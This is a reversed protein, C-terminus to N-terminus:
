KIVVNYSKELVQFIFVEMVEQILNKVLSIMERLKKLFFYINIVSYAASRSENDEVPMESSQATKEYVDSATPTWKRENLDLAGDNALTEQNYTYNQATSKLQGCTVALNSWDGKKVECNVMKGGECDLNACASYKATVLPIKQRAMYFEGSPCVCWGGFYEKEDAGGSHVLVSIDAEYDELLRGCTVKKYNWLSHDLSSANSVTKKNCSLVTGGNCSLANSDTCTKGKQLGAYMKEGNPCQCEGGGEIFDTNNAGVDESNNERFVDPYNQYDHLSSITYDRTDDVGIMTNQFNSTMAVRGGFGLGAEFPKEHKICTQCAEHISGLWSGGRLVYRESKQFFNDAVKGVGKGWIYNDTGRKWVDPQDEYSIEGCNSVQPDGIRKDIDSKNQYFKGEYCDSVWEEALGLMDYLGFSNKKEAAGVNPLTFQGSSETTESTWASNKAAVLGSLDGSWWKMNDSGAKASYEWQSSSPINFPYGTKEALWNVFAKIDRYSQSTAPQQDNSVQTEEIKGCTKYPGCNSKSLWENKALDESKGRIESDSIYATEEVFVGWQAKTILTEGIYFGKTIEADFQPESMGRNPNQDNSSNGYQQFYGGGGMKFFGPPVYIQNMTVQENSQIGPKNGLEVVIKKPAPRINEAEKIAEKAETLYYNPLKNSRSLFYAKRAMNVAKFAKNEKRATKEAKVLYDVQNKLQDLDTPKNKMEDFSKEFGVIRVDCIGPEESSNECYVALTNVADNGELYTVPGDNKVYYSLPRGSKGELNQLIKGNLYVKMKAHFMVRISFAKLQAGPVAFKKRLYIKNSVWKTRIWESSVGIRYDYSGFPGYASKTWTTTTFNKALWSDNSQVTTTYEWTSGSGDTLTKGFMDCVTNQKVGCRVAYGLLAKNNTEFSNIKSCTDGVGGECALKTSCDDTRDSIYAGVLFKEGDPCTCYGGNAQSVKKAFDPNYGETNLKYEEPKYYWNKTSFRPDCCGGQAGKHQVSNMLIKYKNSAYAQCQYDWKYNNSSDAERFCNSKIECTPQAPYEVNMAPGMFNRRPKSSDKIYRLSSNDLSAPSNPWHILFALTNVGYLQNNQNTMAGVIYQTKKIQDSAMLKRDIQVGTSGNAADQISTSIIPVCDVMRNKWVDQNQQMFYGVKGGSLCSEQFQSMLQASVGYISKDPCTCFGGYNSTNMSILNGFGGQVSPRVPAFYFGKFFKDEVWGTFPMGLLKEKINLDYNKDILSLTEFGDNAIYTEGINRLMHFVIYNEASDKFATIDSYGAMFIGGVEQSLNVGSVPINELGRIFLGSITQSASDVQGFLLSNDYQNPDNSSDMEILGIFYNDQTLRYHLKKCNKFTQSSPIECDIASYDDFLSAEVLFFKDIGLFDSAKAEYNSAACVQKIEADTFDDKTGIYTMISIGTTKNIKCLFGGYQVTGSEAVLKGNTLDFELSSNNVNFPLDTNDWFNELKLKLKNNQDMQLTMNEKSKGADIEFSLSGIQKLGAKWTNISSINVFKKATNQSYPISGFVMDGKRTMAFKTEFIESNGNDFEHCSIDMELKRNYFAMIFRQDLVELYGVSSYNQEHDEMLDNQNQVSLYNTDSMNQPGNCNMYHNIDDITIVSNSPTLKVVMYKQVYLDCRKYRNVTVLQQSTFSYAANSIYNVALDKQEKKKDDSISFQGKLKEFTEGQKIPKSAYTPTMYTDVITGQTVVNSSSFLALLNQFLNSSSDRVDDGFTLMDSAQDKTMKLKTLETSTLENAIQSPTKSTNSYNTLKQLLQKTQTNDALYNMLNLSKYVLDENDSQVTSAGWCLNQSDPTIVQSNLATKFETLLTSGSDFLCAMLATREDSTFSDSVDWEDKTILDNRTKGILEIFSILAKLATKKAESLRFIKSITTQILEPSELHKNLFDQIDKVYVGTEREEINKFVKFNLGLLNKLYVQDKKPLNQIVLMIDECDSLTELELQTMLSDDCVVRPQAQIPIISQNSELQTNVIGLFTVRQTEGLKFVPNKSASYESALRDQMAIKESDIMSAKLTSVEHASITYLKITDTGEFITKIAIRDFQPFVRLKKIFCHTDTEAMELKELKADTLTVEKYKDVEFETILNIIATKQTANVIFTEIFLTNYREFGNSYLWNMMDCLSIKQTSGELWGKFVGQITKDMSQFLKLLSLVQIDTMLFLSKTSTVVSSDLYTTAAIVEALLAVINSKQLDTWKFMACLKCSLTDKFDLIVNTDIKENSLFIPFLMRIEEYSYKMAAQLLFQGKKEDLGMTQLDATSFSCATNPKKCKEVNQVFVLKQGQSLSFMPNFHEMLSTLKKENLYLSFDNQTMIKKGADVNGQFKSKLEGIQNWSLGFLAEFLKLKNEQNLEVKTQGIKNVTALMSEASLTNAIFNAPTFTPKAKVIEEQLPKDKLGTAQFEGVMQNLIKILDEMQAEDMYFVNQLQNLLLFVPPKNKYDIYNQNGLFDPQIVNNDSDISANIFTIINQEAAGDRTGLVLKGSFLIKPEVNVTQTQRWSNIEMLDGYNQDKFFLVEKKSSDLLEKREQIIDGEFLKEMKERIETTTGIEVSIANEVSPEKCVEDDITIQGDKLVAYKEDGLEEKKGKNQSLAWVAEDNDWMEEETTNLQDKLVIGCDEFDKKICNDNDQSQQFHTVLCEECVKQAVDSYKWCGEFKVKNTESLALCVKADHSAIYGKNCMHCLPETTSQEPNPLLHQACNGILNTLDQTVDRINREVCKFSSANKIPIFNPACIQCDKSVPKCSACGKNCTRVPMCKGNKDLKNAVPMFVACNPGQTNKYMCDTLAPVTCEGTDSASFNAFCECKKTTTNYNTCGTNHNATHVEKIADTLASRADGLKGEYDSGTAIEYNEITTDRSRKGAFQLNYLLKSSWDFLKGNLVLNDTGDEYFAGVVYQTLVTLGSSEAGLLRNSNNSANESNAKSEPYVFKIKVMSGDYYGYIMFVNDFKTPDKTNELSNSGFGFIIGRSIMYWLNYDKDGLPGTHKGTQYVQGLMEIEFSIEDSCFAGITLIPYAQRDWNKKLKGTCKVFSYKQDDSGSNAVVYRKYFTFDPITSNIASSMLVFRGTSDEGYGNIMIENKDSLEFQMNEIVVLNGKLMIPKWLTQIRRQAPMFKSMGSFSNTVVDPITVSIHSKQIKITHEDYMGTMVYFDVFENNIIADSGFGYVGKESSGTMWMKTKNNWCKVSRGSWPEGDTNNSREFKNCTLLFGNECALQECDGDNKVGVSYVAGSPCTCTGGWKGGTGNITYEDLNLGYQCKSDIDAFNADTIKKSDPDTKECVNNICYPKDSTGCKVIKGSGMNAGCMHGRDITTPYHESCTPTRSKTEKDEFIITNPLDAYWIEDTTKNSSDKTVAVKIALRLKDEVITLELLSYQDNIQYNVQTSGVTITFLCMSDDEALDNESNAFNLWAAFVNYSAGRNPEMPGNNITFWCKDGFKGAGDMQFETSLIFHDQSLLDTPNVKSWAIKTTGKMSWNMYEYNQEAGDFKSLLEMSPPLFPDVIDDNFQSLRIEPQVQHITEEMISKSSFTFSGNSDQGEGVIKWVSNHKPLCKALTGGSAGETDIKTCDNYYNTKEWEDAFPVDIEQSGISEIQWDSIELLEMETGDSVTTWPVKKRQLEAWGFKSGYLSTDWLKDMTPKKLSNRELNLKGKMSTLDTAVKSEFKRKITVDWNNDNTNWELKSNQHDIEYRKTVYPEKLEPRTGGIGATLYYSTDLTFGHGSLKGDKQIKLDAVREASPTWDTCSGSLSRDTQGSLIRRRRQPCSQLKEILEWEQNNGYGNLVDDIGWNTEPDAQDLLLATTSERTAPIKPCRFNEKIFTIFSNEPNNQIQNDTDKLAKNVVVWGDQDRTEQRIMNLEGKNKAWGLIHSNEHVYLSKNQEKGMIPVSGIENFDYYMKGNKQAEDGLARVKFNLDSSTFLEQPVDQKYWEQEIADTMGTPIAPEEPAGPYKWRTLYMNDVHQLEAEVTEFHSHPIYDRECIVSKYSWSINGFKNCEMDFGGECKLQSCDFKYKTGVYYTQKNPCACM